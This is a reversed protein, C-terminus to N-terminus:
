RQKNTLQQGGNMGRQHRARAPVAVVAVKADGLVSAWPTEVHKAAPAVHYMGLPARLVWIHVARDDLARLHAELAALGRGAHAPLALAVEAVPAPEAVRAAELRAYRAKRAQQDASLVVLM